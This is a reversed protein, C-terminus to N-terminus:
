TIGSWEVEGTECDVSVTTGPEDPDTPVDVAAGWVRRGRKEMLRVSVIDFGPGWPDATM